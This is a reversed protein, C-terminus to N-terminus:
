RRAKWGCAWARPMAKHTASGTASTSAPNRSSQSPLPNHRNRHPRPLYRLLPLRNRRPLRHRQRHPPLQQYRAKGQNRCHSARVRRKHRCKGCSSATHTACEATRYQEGAYSRGTNHDLNEEHIEDKRPTKRSWLCVMFDSFIWVLESYIYLLSVTLFRRQDPRLASLRM